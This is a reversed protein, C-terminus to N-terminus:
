FFQLLPISIAVLWLVVGTRVHGLETDPERATASAGAAIFGIAVALAIRQVFLDLSLRAVGLYTFDVFIALIFGASGAIFAHSASLQRSLLYALIPMGCVLLPYFFGAIFKPNVATHREVRIAGFRVLVYLGVIAAVVALVRVATRVSTDYQLDRIQEWRGTWRAVGFSGFLGVLLALLQSNYLEIVTVWGNSDAGVDNDYPERQLGRVFWQGKFENEVYLQSEETSPVNHRLHFWDWYDLHAQMATWEGGNPDNYARVHHRSGLYDGDGLQYSETLWRGYEGPPDVYTYRIAGDAIGWGMTTQNAPGDSEEAPAIDQEDDDIEEWDGIADERLLTEIDETDGYVVLNIALTREGFDTARSTYPWIETGDALQVTHVTEPDTQASNGEGPLDIVAVSGTAVALVLILIGIATRLRFEVRVVGEIATATSFREAM